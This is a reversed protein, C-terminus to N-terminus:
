PRSERRYERHPQWEESGNKLLGFLHWAPCFLDGPGFPSHGTRVIAGSPARWFGSVGPWHHEDGSERRIFGMARTFDGRADALMRFGWGRQKAFSQQVDTGDPSVVVFAARNELHQLIGNFGDAWLTCYDCSSGMNHVVILEDRGGFAESLRVAGNWGSLEFDEVPEQSLRAKLVEAKKRGEMLEEELGELEARLDALENM